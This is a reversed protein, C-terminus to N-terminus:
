ANTTLRNAFSCVIKCGYVCSYWRQCQQNFEIGIHSYHGDLFLLMPAEKTLHSVASLVTEKVMVLTIVLWGDQNVSEMFQQQVVKCGDRNCTGGKICSLLHFGGEMPVALVIYQPISIDMEVQSKM